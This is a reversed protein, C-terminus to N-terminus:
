EKAMVAKSTIGELRGLQGSLTSIEDSSGEIVISIINIGRDRIPIGQRGIIISAHRTLIDNLKQVNEKEKVLIIIAGIRKEM